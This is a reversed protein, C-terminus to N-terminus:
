IHIDIIHIDIDIFVAYLALGLTDIFDLVRTSAM